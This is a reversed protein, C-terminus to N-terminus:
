RNLLLRTRELIPDDPYHELAEALVRVADEQEGLKWLVEALHAAIEPDGSMRHARELYELASQLDGLRYYAWGMSDIIAASDPKLRYARRILEYGEQYRDTRDVLTYGLANLAHAHDPDAALLARLDREAAELRGLEVQILARSYRVEAMNPRQTLVRDFLELAQGARDAQRLLEGEIVYARAAYEPRDQRLTALQQRAATLDGGAALLQAIRFTVDPERADEVQSYWRLAGPYDDELEALRGLYYYADDLREGLSVLALLHERARQLHGLEMSLLAAGYLVQADDQRELALMEFQELASETRDMDLLTRAYYLRLAYDEPQDSLLSELRQLAKETAGEILQIRIELLYPSRWGPELLIARRVARLALSSEGAHLAVQALVYQAHADAPREAVLQELVAVAAARDPLHSLAVGLRAFSEDAVAEDGAVALRLHELAAARDGARLEFLGVHQRAQADDPALALWRRAAERGDAVHDGFLGLRAAREAIRPDETLWMAALYAQLAQAYDEQRAALDAVLLHYYLAGLEDSPAQVPDVHAQVPDVPAPSDPRPGACASLVLGLIAAMVVRHM